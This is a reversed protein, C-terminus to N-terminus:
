RRRASFGRAVAEEPTEVRILHVEDSVGHQSLLERLRVLLREAGPCGDFSLLEILM